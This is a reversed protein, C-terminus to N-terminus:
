EIIKIVKGSDLYTKLNKKVDDLFNDLEKNNTIEYQKSIVEKTKLTTIEKPKEPEPNEIEIQKKIRQIIQEEEYPLNYLIADIKSCENLNEISAVQNDLISIIDINFNDDKIDKILDKVYNKTKEIKEEASKKRESLREGYFEKLQSLLLPIDKIFEYPEYDDIIEKLRTLKSRNEEDLYSIESEYFNYKNRGEEFIKIQDSEFFNRVPEIKKEYDKLENEQEVLKNFFNSEEQISNNLDLSLIYDSLIEKGPYKNLESRKKYDKLKNNLESLIRKTEKFLKESDDPLNVEGYINFFLEKTRRILEKNPERKLSVILREFNPKKTLYDLLNKDNKEILEENLKLNITRKIFLTTVLGYIDYESWGFPIKSFNDIISKYSVKFGRYQQNEIYQKLETLALINASEESLTMAEIDNSYLIRKMDDNNQYHIEIYGLKTYTNKVLEILGNRLKEKASPGSINIPSGNLYFSADLLINELASKIRKQMSGIEDAKSKQIKQISESIKVSSSRKLYKQIKLLEEIDIFYKNNESLIAQLIHQGMSKLALQGMGLDYDPNYPTIIKLGIEHEVNSFSASDLMKKFSYINFKDYSIKADDFIEGYIVNMLYSRIEQEDIDVNNIANNVEQEEETLFIFVDGSKHVLKEKILRELSELVTERLKLKDENINAVMLTTINELNPRIEEIYKIMFLVKLLDADYDSLRANDKAKTITGRISSFIFSEISEYFTNFPVLIGLDYDQYKKSADQFASILSREGRALHSGAVGMKRISEFVKQVLNFQFPIFPYVNVFDESDKYFKMETTDSSFSILNKLITDYKIYYPKISERATDKKELIRKKIVEDTNASSLSIRTPFRGIIKSFDDGKVRTITDVAEQSSVIIWAKGKLIRGFDEVLTMLNAMLDSNDGIYFGMEDIIFIVRHDGKEDIYDKLINTFKEVSLSYNQECSDFWKEAENESMIESKKIAEVISDRQFHFSDRCGLWDEGTIEKFNKKFVEYKGMKDIIREFEALWPIEGCYGVMNNFMRILINVILEKHSKSSDKKSEIDFLIVDKTSTKVARKIDGLLIEDEIKESFFELTTKGKVTKNQLLYGIMKLFHSKGSGFFGSVWVGINDTPTDISKIYANFFDHFHKNMERTVVYEDLEQYINDVDELEVKVVGSINRQIDKKFIEGIKM